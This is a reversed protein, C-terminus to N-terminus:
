PRSDQHRRDDCTMVEERSSCEQFRIGRWGEREGEAGQRTKGFQDGINEDDEIEAREREGPV